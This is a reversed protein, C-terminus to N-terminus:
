WHMHILRAQFKKLPNIRGNPLKISFNRIITPEDVRWLVGDDTTVVFKIGRCYNKMNEYISEIFNDREDTTMTTGAEVRKKIEIGSNEFGDMLLM